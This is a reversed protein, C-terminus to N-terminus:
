GDHEMDGTLSTIGLWLGKACRYFVIHFLTLVVILLALGPLVADPWRLVLIIGGIFGLLITVVLNIAMGGTSQNGTREYETGCYECRERLGYFSRFMRGRGCVPCRGFFGRLLAQFFRIM